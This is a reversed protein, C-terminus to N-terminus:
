SPIISFGKRLFNDSYDVTFQPFSDLLDEEIVFSFDEIDM